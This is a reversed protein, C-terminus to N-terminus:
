IDLCPPFGWGLEVLMSFYAFVICIKCSKREGLYQQMIHLWAQKMYNFPESLQYALHLVGLCMKIRASYKKQMLLGIRSFQLMVSVNSILLVSFSIQPLQSPNCSPFISFLLKVMGKLLFSCIGQLIRMSSSLLIAPSQGEAQSFESGLSYHLYLCSNWNQGCFDQEATRRWWATICM